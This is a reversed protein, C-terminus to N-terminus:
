SIKTDDTNNNCQNDNNSSSYSMTNVPLNICTGEGSGESLQTM